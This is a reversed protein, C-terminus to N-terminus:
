AHVVIIVVVRHLQEKYLSIQDQINKYQLQITQIKADGRGVPIVMPTFEDLGYTKILRLIEEIMTETTIEKRRSNLDRMRWSSAFQQEEMWKLDKPTAARVSFSPRPRSHFQLKAAEEAGKEALKLAGIARNMEPIRSPASRQPFFSYSDFWGISPDYCVRSVVFLTYFACPSVPYFM